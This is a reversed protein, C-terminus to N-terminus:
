VKLFIKKLTYTTQYQELDDKTLLGILINTDVVRRKKM